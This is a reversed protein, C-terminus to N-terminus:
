ACRTSTPPPRLRNARAAENPAPRPKQRQNVRCRQLEPVILEEQLLTPYEHCPSHSSAFHIRAVGRAENELESSTKASHRFRCSSRRRPLFVQTWRQCVSHTPIILLPAFLTVLQEGTAVRAELIMRQASRSRCPTQQKCQTTTKRIRTLILPM